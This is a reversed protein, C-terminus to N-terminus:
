CRLYLIIVLFQLGQFLLRAQLKDKYHWYKVLRETVFTCDIWLTIIGCRLLLIRGESIMKTTGSLRVM